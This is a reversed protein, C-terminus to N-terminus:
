RCTIGGGAPQQVCTLSWRSCTLASAPCRGRLRDSEAKGATLVFVENTERHHEVRHFTKPAAGEFHRLMAVRWGHFDLVSKYKQEFSEGVEIPSTPVPREM